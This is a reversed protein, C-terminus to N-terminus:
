GGNALQGTVLTEFRDIEDRLVDLSGRWFARDRVDVGFGGALDAAAQMGTQSLLEDYRRVFSSRDDLFRAFLGLGFLLGFTYPFSYFPNEARYYHPKVAWMYKHLQSPDLGDGYSAMQAALMLESLEDTSLERALRQSFLQEEFQLRSAIDVVVQCHDQLAAELITLQQSKELQSLAARQVVTQCFTSATEALTMPTGSQLETREALNLNHYAHGLEHALTSMGDYSPSFNVLIRSVDQRVRMCFGGDLKGVRPEADIWAQDFARRALSQLRDSFAGFQELIFDKASEYEWVPGGQGVPAFLDFWPLQDVGLYRAKQKLYRRFDPFSEEVAGMMADLTPRDIHNNFLAFDLANDWHRRAALTNVEGKISNIAAALPVSWTQWTELEAEYAVQRTQRDAHCALNRAASMPMTEPGGPLEVRVALRSTVDKHLKSWASSGSLGLEGALTELDPDMLHRSGEAARKLYYAHDAAVSSTELLAPVDLVGIWAILRQSLLDLKLRLPLLESWRAQAVEDSTDVATLGYLYAEILEFRELEVNTAEIVAEFEAVEPLAKAPGAAVGVADYQRELSSLGEVMATYNAMFEPSAPGPFFVDLDWHPLDHTSEAVLSRWM